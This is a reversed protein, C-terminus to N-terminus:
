LLADGRGSEDNAIERIRNQTFFENRGLRTNTNAWPTRNRSLIANRIGTLCFLTESGMLYHLHFKTNTLHVHLVHLTGDYGLIACIRSAPRLENLVTEVDSGRYHASSLM